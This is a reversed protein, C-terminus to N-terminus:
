IKITRKYHERSQSMYLMEKVKDIRKRGKPAVGKSEWNVEFM